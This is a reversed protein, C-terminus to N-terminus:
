NSSSRKLPFPPARARDVITKIIARFEWQVTDWRRRGVEWWNEQTLACPCKFPLSSVGDLSFTWKMWSTVMSVSSWWWVGLISSQKSIQTIWVTCTWTAFFQRIRIRAGTWLQAKIDFVILWYQFTIMIQQTSISTRLWPFHMCYLRATYVFITRRRDTSRVTRIVSAVTRSLDVEFCSESFCPM